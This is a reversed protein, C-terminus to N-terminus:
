TEKATLRRTEAARGSDTDTQGAGHPSDGARRMHEVLCTNFEESLLRRIGFSSYLTIAAPLTLVLVFLLTRTWRTDGKPLLTWCVVFETVAYLSVALIAVLWERAARRRERLLATTERSLVPEGSYGFVKDEVLALARRASLKDHDSNYHLAVVAMGVAPVFTLATDVSVVEFKFGLGAGLALAVVPWGFTKTNDARADIEKRLADYEKLALNTLYEARKPDQTM